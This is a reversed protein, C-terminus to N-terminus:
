MAGACFGARPAIDCSAGQLDRCRFARSHTESEKLRVDRLIQPRRDTQGCTKANGDIDDLRAAKGQSVFCEFPRRKIIAFPDIKRTM